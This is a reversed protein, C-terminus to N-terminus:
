SRSRRAAVYATGTLEGTQGTSCTPSAESSLPTGSVGWGFGDCTVDETPPDCAWGFGNALLMLQCTRLWCNRWRPSAWLSHCVRLGNWSGCEPDHGTLQNPCSGRPM